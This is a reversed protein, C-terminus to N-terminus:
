GVWCKRISLEGPLLLVFESFSTGPCPHAQAGCPSGTDTWVAQLSPGQERDGRKGLCRHSRTPRPGLVTTPVPPCLHAKAQTGLM